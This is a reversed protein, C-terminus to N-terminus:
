SYVIGRAADEVAKDITINKPRKRIKTDGVDVPSPEEDQANKTQRKVRAEEGKAKKVDMFALTYIRKVYKKLGAKDGPKYQGPMETFLSYMSQGVVEQQKKSLKDGDMLSKIQNEAVIVDAENDKQQFKSDVKSALIEKFAGTLSPALFKLNEGLHKTLIGEIEDSDTAEGKNDTVDGTTFNVTLGAQKALGELAAQPNTRLAALVKLAVEQDASEVETDSEESDESDGTEDEGETADEETYDEEEEDVEDETEEAVPIQVNLEGEDVEETKGENIAAAAKKVAEDLSPKVEEDPM